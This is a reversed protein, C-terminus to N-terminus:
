KKAGKKPPPAGLGLAQRMQLEQAAEKWEEDPNEIGIERLATSTKILGQQALQLKLMARQMKVNSLSSFPVIRFNFDHWAQKISLLISDALTEVQIDEDNRKADKVAREVGYAIIEKVLQQRELKYKLFTEGGGYYTVMRDDDYFQFIRSIVKKGVREILMELRRASARVLIQAAGQLGEVQVGSRLEVRGRGEMGPDTTGVQQNVLQLLLQMLAMADSGPMAGPTRAVDRGAAKEVVMQGRDLLRQITDPDLANRDAVVWPFGNRIFSQVLVNGSDNFANQLTRLAEIESRGWPHDPDLSNDYLDLDCMGDFYPNRDDQPNVILDNGVRVLYRGLGNPYLPTDGDTSPDFLFYERVRSRPVANSINKDRFLAAQVTRAISQLFGATTEMNDPKIRDAFEPYRRQLAGTPQLSELSIYQGKNIENARTVAPDVGIYRPDWAELTIDGFEFQLDRQWRTRIGAPGMIGALTLLVEVAGPFQQSDLVGAAATKLIDATADLHPREPVIDFTPKCEALLSIRRGMASTLIDATFRNSNRGELPKGAGGRGRWIDVDREWDGGWNDRAKKAEGDIRDLFGIMETSSADKPVHSRM